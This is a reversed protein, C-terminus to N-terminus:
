RYHLGPSPVRPAKALAEDLLASLPSAMMADVDAVLCEAAMRPPQGPPLILYSYLRRMKLKM